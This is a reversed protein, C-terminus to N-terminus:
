RNRKANKFAKMVDDFSAADKDILNVLKEQLKTADEVLKKM